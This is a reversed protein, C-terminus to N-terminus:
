VHIGRQVHIASALARAYASAKWHKTVPILLPQLGHRVLSELGIRRYQNMLARPIRRNTATRAAMNKRAPPQAVPLRPAVPGASQQEPQHDRDQKGPLGVHNLLPHPWSRAHLPPVSDEEGYVEGAEQGNEHHGGQVGSPEM